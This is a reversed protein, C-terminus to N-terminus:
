TTGMIPHTQGSLDVEVNLDEEKLGFANLDLLDNEKGSNFKRTGALGLPDLQAYKYGTVAFSRYLKYFKSLASAGKDPLTPSSLEGPLNSM